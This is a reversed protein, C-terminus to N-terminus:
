AAANAPQRGIAPFSRVWRQLEAAEIVTARGDKRATLEKEKIARFIRTRSRASAIAAAEPTYAIPPVPSSTKINDAEMKRMRNEPTGRLAASRACYLGSIPPDGM